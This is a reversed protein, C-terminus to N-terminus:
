IKLKKELWCLAMFYDGISCGPLRKVIVNHSKGLEELVLLKPIGNVYLTREKIM